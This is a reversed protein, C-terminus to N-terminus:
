NGSNLPLLKLNLNSKLYNFVDLLTVKFLTIYFMLNAVTVHLSSNIIISM